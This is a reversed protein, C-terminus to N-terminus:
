TYQKVCYLETVYLYRSSLKLSGNTARKAGDQKIPDSVAQLMINASMLCEMTYCDLCEAFYAEHKKECRLATDLSCIRKYWKAM